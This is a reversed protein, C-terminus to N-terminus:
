VHFTAAPAEAVPVKSQTGVQIVSKLWSTDRMLTGIKIMCPSASRIRRRLRYNNISTLRVALESKWVLLIAIDEMNNDGLRRLKRAVEAAALATPRSGPFSSAAVLLARAGRV